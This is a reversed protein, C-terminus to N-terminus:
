VCRTVPKGYQVPPLILANCLICKLICEGLFHIISVIPTNTGAYFNKEIVIARRSYGTAM